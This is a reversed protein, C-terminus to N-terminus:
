KPDGWSTSNARSPSSMRMRWDRGMVVGTSSPPVSHVLPYPSSYQASTVEGRNKETRPSSSVSYTLWSPERMM